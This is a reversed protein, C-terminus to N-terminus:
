HKYAELRRGWVDAIENQGKKRLESIGHSVMKQYLEPGLIKQDAIDLTKLIDGASPWSKAIAPNELKWAIRNKGVEPKLLEKKVADQVFEVTGLLTKQKMLGALTLNQVNERAASSLLKIPFSNDVMYKAFDTPWSKVEGIWGGQGDQNNQGMEVIIKTYMDIEDDSMKNKLRAFREGAREIDGGNIEALMFFTKANPADEISSSRNLLRLQIIREQLTEPKDPLSARKSEWLSETLRELESTVFEKAFNNNTAM